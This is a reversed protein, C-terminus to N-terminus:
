TDADVIMKMYRNLIAEDVLHVPIQSVFDKEFGVDLGAEPVQYDVLERLSQNVVEYKGQELAIRIRVGLVQRVLEKQVIANRLAIEINESARDLDVDHYHFHEAMGLWGSVRDPALEIREKLLTKADLLKKARHYHNVLESFVLDKEDNTKAFELLNSLLKEVDDFRDAAYLPRSLLDYQKIKEIFNKNM